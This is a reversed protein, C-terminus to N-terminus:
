PKDAEERGKGRWRMMGKVRKKRVRYGEKGGRKKWAEKQGERCEGVEGAGVGKGTGCRGWRGDQRGDGSGGRRM